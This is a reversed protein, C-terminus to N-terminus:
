ASCLRTRQRVCNASTLSISSLASSIRLAVARAHASAPRYGNKGTGATERCVRRLVGDVARTVQRYGGAVHLFDDRGNDAEQALTIGTLFNVIVLLGAHHHAVQHGIRGHLGVEEVGDVAGALRSQGFGDVADVALVAVVGHAYGQLAVVRCPVDLALVAAALVGGAEVFDNLDLRSVPITHISHLM